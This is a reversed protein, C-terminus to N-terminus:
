LPWLGLHKRPDRVLSGDEYGWGDFILLEPAGLAFPPVTLDPSYADGAAVDVNSGGIFTSALLWRALSRQVVQVLRVGEALPLHQIADRTIVLDYGDFRQLRPQHIYTRGPHRTRALAIAEASIDVGVYGPLDPMWYGDGCGIDLVSTVGLEDVLRVIEGAVRATASSGSGPGSRSEVGQWANTRYIRDFVDTVGAEGDV